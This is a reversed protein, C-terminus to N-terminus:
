LRYNESWKNCSQQRGATLREPEEERAAKRKIGRDKGFM